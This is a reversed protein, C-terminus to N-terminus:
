CFKPPQLVHASDRGVKLDVMKKRDFSELAEYYYHYIINTRVDDLRIQDRFMMQFFWQWSHCTFFLYGFSLDRYSQGFTKPHTRLGEFVNERIRSIILRNIVM